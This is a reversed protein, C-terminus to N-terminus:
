TGGMLGVLERQKRFMRKSDAPGTEHDYGAVHLIGHALLFLLEDEFSHGRETAQAMAKPASIVVDGMLAPPGGDPANPARKLAALGDKTLAPFSLVDTTADKGRYERNLERMKRDGTILVSLEASPFGLSSLALGAAKRLM